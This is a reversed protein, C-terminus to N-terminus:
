PHDPRLDVPYFLLADGMSLLFGPRGIPVAPTKSVCQVFHRDNRLIVEWISLLNMPFM